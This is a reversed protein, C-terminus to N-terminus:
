ISESQAKEDPISHSEWESKQTLFAENLREITVVCWDLYAPLSVLKDRYDSSSSSLVSLIDVAINGISTNEQCQLFSVLNCNSEDQFKPDDQLIIVSLLANLHDFFVNNANSSLSKSKGYLEISEGGHAGNTSTKSPSSTGNMSYNVIALLQDIFIANSAHSLSLIIKMVSKLVYKLDNLCLQVIQDHHPDRAPPPASRFHIYAKSYNILYSNLGRLPQMRLLIHACPVSSSLLVLGDWLFRSKADLLRHLDIYVPHQAVTNKNDWHGGNSNDSLKLNNIYDIASLATRRGILIVLNECCLSLFISEESSFEFSSLDFNPILTSPTTSLAFTYSSVILSHILAETLIRKVDSEIIYTELIRQFKPHIINKPTFNTITGADPPTNSNYIVEQIANAIL